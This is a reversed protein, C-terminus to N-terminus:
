IDLLIYPDEKTGMGTASINKIINIVPRVGLLQTGVTKTNLAGSTDVVYPYFNTNNKTAATMTYYANKIDANYLYYDKNESTSAGAMIAEDATLLGISAVVEQGLCINNPIYDISLRNYAAYNTNDEAMLTDNCFKSSAILDSYNNLTINWWDQLNEKILSNAYTFDTGDYYSSSTDIVNDLVLKVSGDANIKVIRWVEDALSVYNNTVAGRFYYITGAETEDKILGENTTAVEKFTTAPKSAVNSNDIIIEGFTSSAKSGLAVILEGSYNEKGKNTIKLTYEQTTHAPITVQNAVISSLLKNELALDNNNGQLNYTANSAYINALKVYFIEEQEGNNTVSFNLDKDKRSKFANGNLYNITLNGDVVVVSKPAFYHTYLHYTVGLALCVGILVVILM